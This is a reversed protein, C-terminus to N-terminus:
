IKNMKILEEDFKQLHNTVSDINSEYDSLMKIFDAKLEEETKDYFTNLDYPYAKLLYHKWRKNKGGEPDLEQLIENLRNRDYSDDGADSMGLSIRIQNKNYLSIEFVFTEGKNWGNPAKNFHIYNEMEKPYFRIYSKSVSGLIFDKSELVQQIYNNINQVGDPKIEYIFDFLEKHKLYIEQALESNKDVGMVDSKLTVLYQVIFSRVISDLNSIDLSELIDIIVQYSMPLYLEAEGFSSYGLPNLYIYIKKKDPFNQNVINKYRTLQDSHEDSFIKNEVCFVYEELIILLDINEWERRVEVNELNIDQITFDKEFENSSKIVEDLFSKLISNGISHNAKPDLLWSLFNSHRIEANTVRLIKFINPAENGLSEKIRQVSKDDLFDKYLKNIDISSM